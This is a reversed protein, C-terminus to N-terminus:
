PFDGDKMGPATGSLVARTLIMPKDYDDSVKVIEESMGDYTVHRSIWIGEMRDGAENIDLRIKYPPKYQAVLQRKVTEPLAEGIDRIDNITHSATLKALKFDGDYVVGHGSAHYNTASVGVSKGGSVLWLLGDQDRWKGGIKERLSQSSEETVARLQDRRPKGATELGKGSPDPRTVAEGEFVTRTPKGNDGKKDTVEVKVKGTKKAWSIEVAHDPKDITVREVQNGSKELEQLGTVLKELTENDPPSRGANQLLTRISERIAKPEGGQFANHIAAIEAAFKPGRTGLALIKAYQEVLNNSATAPRSSGMLHEEKLIAAAKNTISSGKPAGSSADAPLIDHVLATLEPSMDAGPVIESSVFLIAATLITQTKL